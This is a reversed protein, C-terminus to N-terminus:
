EIEKGRCIFYGEQIAALTAISCTFGIAISLIKWSVIGIGFPLLFLMTGTVKNMAMRVSILKHFIVLILILNSLKIFAIIAIWILQWKPVYLSALINSLVAMVFVFDAITDLKAGFSSNLNLKRAVLGDIMDTFAGLIYFVYFGVSFASYFLICVAFVIRSATVADAVNLKHKVGLVEVVELEVAQRRKRSGRWGFIFNM